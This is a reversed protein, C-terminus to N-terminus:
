EQAGIPHKANFDCGIVFRTGLTSLLSQSETESIKHKSPCYVASVILSCRENEILINVSQTSCIQTFLPHKVTTRLMVAVNETLINPTM